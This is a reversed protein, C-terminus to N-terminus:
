KLHKELVNANATMRQEYASPSLLGTELTDLEVLKVRLDEAVRRAVRTRGGPGVFIVHINRERLTARLRSLYKPTPNVEPVEEVVGAIELGYRRAFYPFADHYTVIARNTVGALVQRIDGDLKNLRAIYAHANGAYADAHAPDIRQLAALINSVGHAALQPDLWIHPNAHAAHEGESHGHHHEGAILEAKLGASVTVLRGGAEPASRLFKPLWGELNLGNVIILDAQALKRADGPTFAYEHPEARPPLLNEVDANTGTVNAAWCYLPLFSTVIRPREVASSVTALAMLLLAISCGRSMFERGNM